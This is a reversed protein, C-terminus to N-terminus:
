KFMKSKVKDVLRDLVEPLIESKSEETLGLADPWKKQLDQDPKVMDGSIVFGETGTLVKMSGYFDGTEYLQIHGARKGYTDVSAASYDGLSDGKADIGKEFMQAQNLDLIQAQLQPEQLIAEIEKNPNIKQLNRGITKFVGFM